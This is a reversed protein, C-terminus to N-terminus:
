NSRWSLTNVSRLALTRIDRFASVSSTVRYACRMSRRTAAPDSSAERMTAIEIALRTKSVFHNLVPLSMRRAGSDCQGIEIRRRRRGSVKTVTASATM